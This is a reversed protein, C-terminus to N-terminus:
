EPTEYDLNSDVSAPDAFPSILEAVSCGLECNESCCIARDIHIKKVSGNPIQLPVVGLVQGTVSIVRYPGVYRPYLKRVPVKSPMISRLLVVTGVAIAKPRARQDYVDKSRKQEARLAKVVIRRAAKLMEIRDKVAIPQDPGIDLNGHILPNPDRGFM